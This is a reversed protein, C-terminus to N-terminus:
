FIVPEKAARAFSSRILRSRAPQWASEPSRWCSEDRSCRVLSSRLPHILTVPETSVSHPSASSLFRSMEPQSFTVPVKSTNTCSLAKLSSLRAWQQRRVPLMASITPIFFRVKKSIVLHALTAPHMSTSAPTPLTSTTRRDSHQCSWPAMSFHTGRSVLRRSISRYPVLRISPLRELKEFRSATVLRRSALTTPDKSCRALSTSKCSRRRLTSLTVPLKADSSRHMCSLSSCSSSYSSCSLKTVPKASKALAWGLHSTCIRLGCLRVKLTTAFSM